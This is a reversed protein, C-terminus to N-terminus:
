LITRLRDMVDTPINYEHHEFMSALDHIQSSKCYEFKLESVPISGNCIQKALYPIEFYRFMNGIRDSTYYNKKFSIIVTESSTICDIIRQLEKCYKKECASNEWSLFSCDM